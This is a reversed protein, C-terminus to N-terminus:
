KKGQAKSLKKELRAIRKESDANWGQQLALKTVEIAKEVEGQKEYIIALQKFGRHNPLVRNSKEKLFESKAEESISIQKKCYEISKDLAGEMSERRPYYLDLGQQYTFHVNLIDNDEAVVSEAKELIRKGINFDEDSSFWGILFCLFHLKTASTEVIEGKDISDEENWGLPNYKSRIHEREEETFENMWWDQLNHYAIDGGIKKEVKTDKNKNFLGFIM